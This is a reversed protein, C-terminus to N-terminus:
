DWCGVFVGGVDCVRVGSSGAGSGVGVDWGVEGVDSEPARVRKFDPRVSRWFFIESNSAGLIDMEGSVKPRGGRKRSHTSFIRASTENAGPETASSIQCSDRSGM